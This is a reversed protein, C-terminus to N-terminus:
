VRERCSARGIESREARWRSPPKPERTPQFNADHVLVALARQEALSKHQIQGDVYIDGNRIELSEGPLGVVRKVLIEEAQQSQRFAVIEWRRPPRFSFAARDILVREGAADPLWSELQNAAYGCNPCVAQPVLPLVDTGCSFAFGCDACGVDRHRGLLTEAMSGGSIRYPIVLGDLLWTQVLGAALLFYVCWQVAIRLSSRAATHGAATM